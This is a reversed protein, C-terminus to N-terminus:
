KKIKKKLLLVYKKKSSGQHSLQYLIQRCCPLRPNSGQTPLDGPSSFLQGSWYEPRSFEMSQITWPTVFLRVRSLSKWKVERSPMISGNRWSVGSFHGPVQQHVEPALFLVQCIHLPETFIPCILLLIFIWKIQLNQNTIHTLCGLSQVTPSRCYDGCQSSFLYSSCVCIHLTISQYCLFCCISNTPPTPEQGTVIFQFCDTTKLYCM